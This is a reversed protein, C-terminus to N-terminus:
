QMGGDIRDYTMHSPHDVMWFRMWEAQIQRLDESQNLLVQMRLTPDSPYSNLLCGTNGALFFAVVVLLLFRWM